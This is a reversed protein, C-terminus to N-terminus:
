KHYLYKRRISNRFSIPNVEKEEVNSKKDEDSKKKANDNLNSNEENENNIINSILLEQNKSIYQKTRYINNLRNFKPNSNNIHKNNNMKAIFEEKKFKEENEKLINKASRRQNIKMTNDNNNLKIIKIKDSFPIKKSFETKVSNINNQNNNEVFNFNERILNNLDGNKNIKFRKYNQYGKRQNFFNYGNTKPINLMKSNNDSKESNNEGFIAVKEKEKENKNDNIKDNTLQNLLNKNEKNEKSEKNENYKNNDKNDKIKLADGTEINGKIEKDVKSKNNAKNGRNWKYHKIDKSEKKEEFKLDNKNNDKNEKFKIDDKNDKSEKNDIFKRDINNEKSGKNKNNDKNKQFKKNEKIEQNEKVENEDRNEKNEKIDKSKINEKNDKSEKITNIEKKEKNENVVKKLSNDSREQTSNTKTNNINNNKNESTDNTNNKNNLEVKLKNKNDDKNGSNKSNNDVYVFHNNFNFSHGNIVLKTFFPHRLLNNTTARKKPNWQLMKKMLDIAENSANPIVSKLDTGPSNPLEMGILKALEMGENWIDSTPTGLISCMKFLVEKESSGYFIPYPHLYMEAMICGLSWIDISSGYNTSQLICEPARYFRTGIYDTYPPISEIEESLGFDALKVKEGTLLMNEPKMDRHFFGHKHMFSLGLLTQYMINRIENESLYNPEKSRMLELLDTEMLELVFNLSRAKKVFFVEKLKIINEQGLKNLLTEENLKILSRYERSELCDEWDVYNRKLIKIAVLEGTSKKKAKYVNSFSGRGISNLLEYDEM